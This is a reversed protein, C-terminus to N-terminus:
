EKMPTRKRQQLCLCEAPILVNINQEVDYKRKINM